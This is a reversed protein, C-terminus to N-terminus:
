IKVEVLGLAPNKSAERLRQALSESEVDVQTTPLFGAEDNRRIPRFTFEGGDRFRIVDRVGFLKIFRWRAKSSEPPTAHASKEARRKLAVAVSVVPKEEM